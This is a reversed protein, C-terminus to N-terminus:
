SGTRGTGANELEETDGSPPFLVHQEVAESIKMVPIRGRKRM